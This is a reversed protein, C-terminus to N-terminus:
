KQVLEKNETSSILEKHIGYGDKYGIQLKNNVFSVPRGEMLLAHTSPRSDRVTKLVKPWQNIITEFALEKGDDFIPASDIEKEVKEKPAEIKKNSVKTKKQTKMDTTKSLGIDGTAIMMELKKVRDELSVQEELNVLKITAMELIIRPQTAWKAQSESKTLIDLAKLIYDLSM